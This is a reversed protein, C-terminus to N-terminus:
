AMCSYTVALPKRFAVGEGKPPRKCKPIKCNIQGRLSVHLLLALGLASAIRQLADRALSLAQAHIRLGTSGGPITGSAVESGRAEDL